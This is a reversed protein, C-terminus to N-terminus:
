HTLYNVSVGGGVSRKLRKADRKPKLSLPVWVEIPYLGGAGCTNTGVNTADGAASRRGAGGAM